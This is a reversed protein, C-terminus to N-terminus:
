YIYTGMQLIVKPLLYYNFNIMAINDADDVVLFRMVASAVRTDVNVAGQFVDQGLPAKIM